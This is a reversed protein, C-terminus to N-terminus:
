ACPPCSDDMRGRLPSASNGFRTPSGFIVADAWLIDEATAEAVHQAEAAHSAWGSNAAIAEDAALEHVKRLRVEAGATEAGDVISKALEYVTGTSSYYVVAVKAQESM